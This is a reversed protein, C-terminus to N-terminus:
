HADKPTISQLTCYTVDIRPRHRGRLMATYDMRDHHYFYKWVIFHILKM